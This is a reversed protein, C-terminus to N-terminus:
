VSPTRARFVSGPNRAVAIAGDIVGLMQQLAERNRHIIWHATHLLLDGLTAWWFAARSSGFDQNEAVWRYATETEQRAIVRMSSRGVPTAHHICTAAPEVALRHKRSLRFGFDYDEGLSYGTLRDDFMVDEFAGIRYSMSCGSLWDVSDGARSGPYQGMMVRGSRLVTGRRRSRLLFFSKIMLHDVQPQNLIVGGVGMVKPDERLRREIADFYGASVETDDDIFHVVEVGLERCIGIAENRQRALGSQRARRYTLKLSPAHQSSTRECIDRTAETTSADIVLIPIEPSAAHAATCSMRVEEPRDKTCIVVVGLPRHRAFSRREVTSM